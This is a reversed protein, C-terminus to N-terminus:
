EFSTARSPKRGAWPWYPTEKEPAVRGTKLGGRQIEGLGSQHGPRPV